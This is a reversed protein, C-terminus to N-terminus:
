QKNFKSFNLSFQSNKIGNFKRYTVFKVSFIHHAKNVHPLERAAIPAPQLGAAYHKTPELGVEGVM